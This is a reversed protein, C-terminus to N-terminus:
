MFLAPASCSNLSALLFVFKLNRKATMDVTDVVVNDFDVKRHFFRVEISVEIIWLDGTEEALVSFFCHCEDGFVGGDRNRGEDSITNIAIHITDTPVVTNPIINVTDGKLINPGSETRLLLELEETM